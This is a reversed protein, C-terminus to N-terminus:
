FAFPLDLQIFKEKAKKLPDDVPVFYAVGPRLIADKSVPVNFRVGGGVTTNDRAAGNAKVAVPTSLWRQHHLEVSVTVLPVVQYGVHAALMSNTRSSDKDVQSGKVRTLQLVTADAQATLGDKIWAVGVGATVTQYNTVYLANDMGERAALGAGLAARTTKSPTDGGGSGVPATAGFFLPLRLGKSLEPTYLAFFLPNTLATGSDGADPTFKVWGARGYFGLDKLSEIPKYGATLVPALTKAGTQTAYALDLRVLNPAVAPRLLYPLSYMAKKEAGTPGAAPAAASAAPTTEPPAVDARSVGALTFVALGALLATRTEM